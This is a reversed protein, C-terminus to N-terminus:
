IGLIERGLDWLNKGRFGSSEGSWFGSREEGLGWPEKALFGSPGFDWFLKGGWFGLVEVERGSFRRLGEPIVM